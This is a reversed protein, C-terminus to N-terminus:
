IGNVNFVASGPNIPYDLFHKLDPERDQRSFPFLIKKFLLVQKEGTSQSQNAVLM